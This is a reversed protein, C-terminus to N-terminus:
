GNSTSQLQLTATIINMQTHPPSILNTILLILEVLGGGGGGGRGEMRDKGRLQCFGGRGAERAGGVTLSCSPWTKSHTAAKNLIIYPLKLM